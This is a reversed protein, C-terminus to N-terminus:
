DGEASKEANRGIALQIFFNDAKFLYLGLAIGGVGPLLPYFVSRKDGPMGIWEPQKNTALIFAINSLLDRLSIMILYMGLLKFGLSLLGELDTENKSDLDSPYAINHVEKGYKLLYIGLVAQGIVSLWQFFLLIKMGSAFKPTEPQSFFTAGIMSCAQQFSIFMLYVGILKCGLVFYERNKM